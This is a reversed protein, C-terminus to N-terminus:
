QMGTSFTGVGGCVIINGSNDFTIDSIHDIASQAPDGSLYTDQLMGQTDYSYVFYRLSYVDEKAPGAIIVKDHTHDYELKLV